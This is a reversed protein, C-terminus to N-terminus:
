ASRYRTYDHERPVRTGRTPETWQTAMDPLMKVMQVSVSAESPALKSDLRHLESQHSLEDRVVTPLPQHFLTIMQRTLNIAENLRLMM